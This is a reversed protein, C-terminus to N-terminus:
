NELGGSGVDMELTFDCVANQNGCVNPFFQNIKLDSETYCYTVACLM